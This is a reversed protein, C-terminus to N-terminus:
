FYYRNLETKEIYIDALWYYGIYFEVIAKNIRELSLLLPLLHRSFDDKSM